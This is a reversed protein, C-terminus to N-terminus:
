RSRLRWALWGALVIDTESKDVWLLTASQRASIRDVEFPWLSYVFFYSSPYQSAAPLCNTLFDVDVAMM